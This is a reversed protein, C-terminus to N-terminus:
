TAARCAAEKRASRSPSTRSAEFSSPRGARRVPSRAGSREHGAPVGHRQSRYALMDVKGWSEYKGEVGTACSGRSPRRAAGQGGHGADADRAGGEADGERACEHIRAAGAIYAYQAYIRREFTPQGPTETIIAMRNRLGYDTVVFKAEISWIASDHSWVTPPWKTEDFLAHTFTELGFDRASPM